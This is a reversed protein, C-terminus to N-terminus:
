ACFSDQLLLYIDILPATPLVRVRDSQELIGSDQSRNCVERDCSDAWVSAQLIASSFKRFLPLMHRTIARVVRNIATDKWPHFNMLLRARGLSDRRDRLRTYNCRRLMGAGTVSEIMSPPTLEKTPLTVARGVWWSMLSFCWSAASSASIPLSPPCIFSSSILAAGGRSSPESCRFSSSSPLIMM